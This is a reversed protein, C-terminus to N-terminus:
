LPILRAETRGAKAEAKRWRGYAIMSRRDKLRMLDSGWVEREWDGDLKRGDPDEVLFDAYYPLWKDVTRIVVDPLATPRSDDDDLAPRLPIPERAEPEGAPPVGAIFQGIAGAPLDYASEIAALTAPEYNDRRGLEIDNVIRYLDPARERTFTRRNRYRPDLELRRRVLWEGLREWAESAHSPM